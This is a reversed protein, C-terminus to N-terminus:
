DLLKSRDFDLRAMNFRLFFAYILTFIIALDLFNEALAKLSLAKALTYSNYKQFVRYVYLLTFILKAIEYYFMDDTSNSAFSSMRFPYVDFRVPLCDGRSGCEIMMFVSAFLHNSPYLVGAEMALMKTRGRSIFHEKELERAQKFFGHETEDYPKFDVVYGTELDYEGFIGNITNRIPRGYDKVSDSEWYYRWKPIVPGDDPRTITETDETDRRFYSHYCETM